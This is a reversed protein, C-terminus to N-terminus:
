PLQYTATPARTNTPGPTTPTLTPAHTATPRTPTITRSPLPTMTPPSTLTPALTPPPSTPPRTHTPSPTSTPGRTPTATRTPTPTPTLVPTRTPTVTFTPVPTRTLTVTASPLPTPTNTPTSTPTPSPPPTPPEGEVTFRGAQKWELGIFIQVEYEGPLWMDAPPNWDSYGRGGVGGDWPKTEYYVLEGGRYWIATWQVGDQMRDYTFYAFMHGVPNQFIDSPDVPEYNEDLAQAFVLPSFVADPSPTVVSEFIAEIALPVHPTPTITPTDTVAPTPTITPSLTISPTLTITSTTTITPTLTLTATPPYIRYILPEAYGNLFFIAFILGVGFFLLRWGRVMRDRRMRFFKLKQAKRISRIGSWFSILCALIALVLATQIATHIDLPPM